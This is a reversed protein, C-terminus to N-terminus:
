IANYPQVHALSLVSCPQSIPPVNRDGMILGNQVRPKDARAQCSLRPAAPRNLKGGILRLDLKAFSRDHAELLVGPPTHRNDSHARQDLGQLEEPPVTGRKPAPKNLNEHQDWLRAARPGLRSNAATCRYSRQRHFVLRDTSAAPVAAGSGSRVNWTPPGTPNRWIEAARQVHLPDCVEGRVRGSKSWKEAEDV